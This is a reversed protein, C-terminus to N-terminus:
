ERNLRRLYVLLAGGALLTGALLMWNLVSALHNVGTICEKGGQSIFPWGSHGSFPSGGNNFCDLGSVAHWGVPLTISRAPLANIRLLVIGLLVIVLIPAIMKRPRLKNTMYSANRGASM